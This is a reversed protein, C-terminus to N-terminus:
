SLMLTLKEPQGFRQKLLTVSQAYNMETLPLGAIARAADGQLQAKLYNFKHIPSLTPNTDVAAEFSDWFLQWSLPDGSFTPLELKPLRCTNYLQPSAIPTTTYTTVTTPGHNTVSPITTSVHSPLEVATTPESSRTSTSPQSDVSPSSSDVESPQTSSPLTPTALPVSPSAMTSDRTHPKSHIRIFTDIHNVKELIKDQTDEIDLIAEELTDADQILETIQVDLQHITEKNKMLLEQSTKLSSLLLEDVTESAMLEEVRKFQCTVHGKYANRSKQLRTTQDMM